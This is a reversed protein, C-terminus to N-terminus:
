HKFVRKGTFVMFMNHEDCATIVEEDRISGGPQIVGVLGEEHALDVSDRFPFFADSAMITGELDLGAEGAKRIAIKLADVRSMQGAGVGVAGNEDALVIANSKVNKILRWGIRLAKRFADTNKNNTVIKWNQEESESIKQQDQVLKGRGYSQIQKANKLGEHDPILIRLNKKSKLIELAETEYEPAIICELFSKIMEEALEKTVKGNLSVIGGYYSKPDTKVARLYAEKHNEGTGFGCPNMHKILACCPEDFQMDQVIQYAALCDQYNNYSLEKGGLQQFPRWDPDEQPAYLSAKQDPNEGYRLEHVKKYLGEALLSEDQMDAFYKVIQRDYEYTKQFVEAALEKRYGLNLSDKGLKELFRDYQGPDSLVINSKYNKAAARLMSPGGIDIMEIIEDHSSEPDNYAQSFPYLNVVVLQFSSAGIQELDKKHQEKDPDALLGGFIVPHLTKVRGDLIEPYQTIESVRNVKVGSEELKRFTGGTSFIEVDQKELKKALPVVKDKNWVSIIARKITLNSM